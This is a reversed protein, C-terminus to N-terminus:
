KQKNNKKEEKMKCYEEERGAWSLFEMFDLEGNIFDYLTILSQKPQTRPKSKFYKSMFAEKYHMDQISFCGVM